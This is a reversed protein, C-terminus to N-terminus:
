ELFMTDAHWELFERKPQDQMRPPVWIRTGELQFYHEGNDFDEKLRRSVRFQFDPSVTVYGRDFLTHVDSRLLLGNSVEHQGGEAVPRIHAAQLVPLAKERTIACRRQYTDTVLVRFAGQGLRPRVLMPEGYMPRQNDAAHENSAVPTRSAAQVFEWLRRGDQSALDYTKGQVINKAFSSPVNIWASRDLFFPQELIICGIKYDEHPDPSSRRYKEVRRRMEAFTSAGNKEGFTEWALSCPLISSTAFFGGGVIVNEPYHLKFLFLEGPSLANFARNGGPQWFNVEDLHPRQSLFRYWDGDTVGVWLKM